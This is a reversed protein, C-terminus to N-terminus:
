SKDELEGYHLNWQMGRMWLISDLAIIHLRDDTGRASKDNGNKDVEYGVLFGPRQADDDVRLIVPSSITTKVKVFSVTM